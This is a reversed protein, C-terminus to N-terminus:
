PSFMVPKTIEVITEGISYDLDVPFSHFDIENKKMLYVVSANHVNVDPRDKFYWIQRLMCDKQNKGILFKALHQGIRGTITQNAEIKIDRPNLRAFVGITLNKACLSM